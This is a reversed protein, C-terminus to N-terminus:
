GTGKNMVKDLLLHLLPITLGSIGLNFIYNKGAQSM